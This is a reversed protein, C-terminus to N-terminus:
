ESMPRRIELAQRLTQAFRQGDDPSVCGGIM